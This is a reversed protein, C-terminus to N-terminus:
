LTAFGGDAIIESGAMYSSDDSALFLAAKAMEESTGWRGMPTADLVQKGFEQVAEAPLGMRDYIPTEIPGPSLVNVRVGRPLLEVSLTRALSRVAAKTAAYVSMGALGKYAAISATIIVSAGEALHPLAKQITFFAGKFNIDSVRDFHEETTEELPAPPAIGANVFLVDIKGFREATAAYLRDLDALSAVDGQVALGNEGLEAVVEDLTTQNRGFVVVKAGERQFDLASARGIGSNGGTIVAVKDNLKM